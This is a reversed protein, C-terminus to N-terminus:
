NENTEVEGAASVPQLRSAQIRQAIAEPIPRSTGTVPNVNVYVSEINCAQEGAVMFSFALTFSSTGVRTCCVEIDMLDDLYIPRLYNIATRVVSPDFDLDLLEPYSWGLDRFYEAMSVDAYELYRSNFVFRQPDTEHYRVRLRNVFTTEPM